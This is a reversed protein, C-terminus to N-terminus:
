DDDNSDSRDLCMGPIEGVASKPLQVNSEINIDGSALPCLGSLNLECPDLVKDIVNYGYATVDIEATVNGSITSVGVINFALSDNNPTFRVDFLSATFGSNPQCSALAESEIYNIASATQSFTLLAAVSSLLAKRSFIM